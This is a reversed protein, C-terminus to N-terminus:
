RRNIVARRNKSHAEESSGDVEPKESGYSIVTILKEAAGQGVLVARAARARKEGLSLNYEVSGRVDCHGEVEINATAKGKLAAAFQKLKPVDSARVEFSNFDFYVVVKELVPSDPATEAGPLSPNNEGSATGGPAGSGSGGASGTGLDGGKKDADAIADCKAKNAEADAKAKDALKLAAEASAAAEKYAKKKDLEMAEEYMKMAARYSEPACKKALQLGELTEKLKKLLDTPSKACAALLLAAVLGFTLLHLRHTRM